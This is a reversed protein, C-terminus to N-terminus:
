AENISLKGAFKQVVRGQVRLHDLDSPWRAGKFRDKSIMTINVQDSQNGGLIHYTSSDESIYFGVHGGGPRVFVMVCGYCPECKTGVTLWELASLPNKPVEIDNSKMCEAVFLGCWPIDDGTYIDRIWKSQDKAWQMITPNDGSGPTEKLGIYNKATQLWPLNPERIAM